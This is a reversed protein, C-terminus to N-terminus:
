WKLLRSVAASLASELVSAEGHSMPITVKRLSKDAADQRSVSVFYPAREPDERLTLEFASSAKEAQHFLKAQPLRGQLTALVTGLDALGWKMTIKNEWDFQKEGTQLAADVFIAGKTRNLGFRVVGGTGRSNPKYISYDSTRDNAPPTSAPIESTTDKM